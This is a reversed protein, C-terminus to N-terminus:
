VRSSRRRLSWLLLAPLLLIGAGIKGTRDSARVTCGDDTPFAIVTFEVSGTATASEVALFADNPSLRFFPLEDSDIMFPEAPPDVFESLFVLGIQFQGEIPLNSSMIPGGVLSVQDSVQGSPQGVVNNLVRASGSPGANVTYGQSTFAISLNTVATPYDGVQPNPDTDNASREITYSIEMPSGRPILDAFIGDSANVATHYTITDAGAPAALASFAVLFCGVTRLQDWRM